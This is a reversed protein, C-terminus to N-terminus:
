IKNNIKLVAPISSIVICCLVVCIVHIWMGGLTFVWFRCRKSPMGTFLFRISDARNLVHPCSCCWSYKNRMYCVTINRDLYVWIYAYRPMACAAHEDCASWLLRETWFLRITYSVFRWSFRIRSLSNEPIDDYVDRIAFCDKPRIKRFKLTFFLPADFHTNGRIRLLLIETCDKPFTTHIQM